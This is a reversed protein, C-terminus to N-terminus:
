KRRTALSLTDTEIVIIISIVIFSLHSNHVTSVYGRLVSYWYLFLGSWSSKFHRNSEWAHSKRSYGANHMKRWRVHYKLRRLCVPIVYKVENWVVCTWDILRLRLRLRAASRQGGEILEVSTRTSYGTRYPSAASCPARLLAFALMAPDYEGKVRDPTSARRVKAQSLKCTTQIVSLASSNELTRTGYIPIPSATIPCSPIIRDAIALKETNSTNRCHM